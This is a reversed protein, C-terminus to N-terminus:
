QRETLKSDRLIFNVAELLDDVIYDPKINWNKLDKLKTKGSLVLITRLGFKIGAEVDTKGDGIFFADVANLNLEKKASEFLGTKPKRCNCNDSDQHICYYTKEIKAGNEELKELMNQNIENLADEAYYGKSIGGQNSALIISYGALTLKKLADISGPLFKFDEWKEVYSHPTWGAPDKNIVGDRDVFIVKKM